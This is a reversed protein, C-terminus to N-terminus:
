TRTLDEEVLRNTVKLYTLILLVVLATSTLIGGLLAGDLPSNVRLVRLSYTSILVKALFVHSSSMITNINVNAINKKVYVTM